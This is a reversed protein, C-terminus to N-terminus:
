EPLHARIVRRLDALALVVRGSIRSWAYSWDPPYDIDLRNLATPIDRKGRERAHHQFATRLQNVRLLTDIASTISLWDPDSRKLKLKVQLARQIRLATADQSLPTGPVPVLEDHVDCAKLLTAFHSLRMSCDAQNAVEQTLDACDSPAPNHLLPVGFLNRWASDLFDFAEPLATPPLNPPNGGEVVRASGSVEDIIQGGHALALWYKLPPAELPFTVRGGQAPQRIARFLQTDSPNQRWVLSLEHGRLSQPSSERVDVVLGEGPIYAHEGISATDYALSINLTNGWAIRAPEEIDTRGLLIDFVAAELSPYYPGGNVLPHRDWQYEGALILPAPWNITV